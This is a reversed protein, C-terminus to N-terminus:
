QVLSVQNQQWWAKWFGVYYSEQRGIVTEDFASHSISESTRYPWAGRAPEHSGIPVNNAFGSMGGVAISKLAGNQDDLLKALHPLTQQTHMRALATAAAIRFDIGATTDNAIQGLSEVANPATNLYYFKVERVLAPWGGKSALAMYKQQMTLISLPDGTAVLGRLGIMSLDTNSNALFRKFAAVLVQSHTERLNDVLDFPMHAGAETATVMELLVRDFVSPGKPLSSSAVNMIADPIVPPTSVYMDEWEAGGVTVPVIEWTGNADKRLFLLGHDSSTVGTGYGFPTPPLNAVIQISSGNVLSGKLVREIQILAVVTGNVFKAKVSGVVIGDSAAILTALTQRSVPHATAQPPAFLVCLGCVLPLIRKLCM